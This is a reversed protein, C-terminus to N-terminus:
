RCVVGTTIYSQKPNFALKSRKPWITASLNKQRLFGSYGSFREEALLQRVKGWAYYATIPPLHDQARHERWMQWKAGISLLCAAVSRDFGRINWNLQSAIWMCRVLLLRRLDGNFCSYTGCVSTLIPRWVSFNFTLGQNNVRLIHFHMSRLPSFDRESRSMMSWFALLVYTHPPPPHLDIPTDSM